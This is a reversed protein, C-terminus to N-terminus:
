KGKELRKIQSKAVKEKLGGFRQPLVQRETALDQSLKEHALLELKELIAQLGEEVEPPLDGLKLELDIRRIGSFLLTGDPMPVYLAADVELRFAPVDEFGLPNPLELFRFGVVDIKM